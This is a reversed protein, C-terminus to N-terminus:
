VRPEYRPAEVAPAAEAAPAPPRQAPVRRVVSGTRTVPAPAAEVEEDGEEDRNKRVRRRVVTPRIRTEVTRESSERQISRKVKEAEGPELSSMHNRVQIGLSAIRDLLERNKIGLERAIEYVRIKSM